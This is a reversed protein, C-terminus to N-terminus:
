FYGTFSFNLHHNRNKLESSWLGGANLHHNLTTYTYAWELHIQNWQLGTGLSLSKASVTSKAVYYRPVAGTSDIRAELSPMPIGEIGIGFRLPITGFSREMLYEVGARFLFVNSWDPDYENYFEVPVKEVRFCYEGLRIDRNPINHCVAETYLYAYLM